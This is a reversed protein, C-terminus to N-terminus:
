IAHMPKVIYFKHVFQRNLQFNSSRSLLGIALSIVSDGIYIAMVFHLEAKTEVGVVRGISNAHNFGSFYAM